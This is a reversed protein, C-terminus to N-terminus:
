ENNDGDVRSNVNDFVYSALGLKEFRNGSQAILTYAQTKTDEDFLTVGMIYCKINNKNRQLFSITEEVYETNGFSVSLSELEDRNKLGKSRQEM